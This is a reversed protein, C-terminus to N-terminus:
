AGYLSSDGHPHLEMARGVLTGCKSLGDKKVSTKIAYLIRRGVPKLGDRLDPLSRRAIVEHAYDIYGDALFSFGESTGNYLDYGM